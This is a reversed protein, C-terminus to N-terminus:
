AGFQKIIDFIFALFLEYGTVGDCAYGIGISIVGIVFIYCFFGITGETEKLM